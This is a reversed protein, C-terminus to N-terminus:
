QYNDAGRINEHLSTAKVETDITMQYDTGNVLISQISRYTISSGLLARKSAAELRSSGYHDKLRLLGKCANFTQQTFRRSNLLYLIVRTFHDGIGAAKDLFYQQDWGLTEKYRLHKEPM